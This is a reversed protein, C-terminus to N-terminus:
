LFVTQFPIKDLLYHFKPQIHIPYQHMHLRKEQYKFVKLFYVSKKLSFEMGNIEIYESSSSHFELSKCRKSESNERLIRNVNSKM